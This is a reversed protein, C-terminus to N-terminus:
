KMTHTVQYIVLPTKGQCEVNKQQLFVGVVVDQSEGQGPDVVKGVVRGVNRLVVPQKMM